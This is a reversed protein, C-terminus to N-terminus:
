GVPGADPGDATETITEAVAQWALEAREWGRLEAVRQLETRVQHSALTLLGCGWLTGDAGWIQWGVGLTVGALQGGQGVGLGAGGVAAGEGAAPGM